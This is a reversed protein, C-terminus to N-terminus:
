KIAAYDVQWSKYVTKTASIPWTFLDEFLTSYSSNSLFSIRMKWSIAVGYPWWFDTELEFSWWFRSRGGWGGGVRLGCNKYCQWHRESCLETTNCNSGRALSGFHDCTGKEYDWIQDIMSWLILCKISREPYWFHMLIFCASVLGSHTFNKTKYTHFGAANWPVLQYKLLWTYWTM